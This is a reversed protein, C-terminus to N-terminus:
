TRLVIWVINSIIIRLLLLWFIFFLVVAAAAAMNCANLTLFVWALVCLCVWSYANMITDTRGYIVVFKEHSYRCMLHQGPFHIFLWCLPFHVSMIKYLTDTVNQRKARGYLPVTKKPTHDIESRMQVNCKRPSFFNVAEFNYTRGM